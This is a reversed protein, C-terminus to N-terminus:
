FPLSVSVKSLDVFHALKALIPRFFQCKELFQPDLHFVFVLNLTLVDLEVLFKNDRELAFFRGFKTTCHLQNNESNCM